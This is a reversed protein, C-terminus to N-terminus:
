LGKVGQLPQRQCFDTDVNCNTNIIILEEESFGIYEGDRLVGSM